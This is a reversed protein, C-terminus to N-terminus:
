RRGSAGPILAMAEGMSGLGNCGIVNGATEDDM